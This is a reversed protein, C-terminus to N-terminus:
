QRAAPTAIVAIAPVVDYSQYNNEIAYQWASIDTAVEERDPGGRAAPVLERM